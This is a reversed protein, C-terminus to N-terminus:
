RDTAGREGLLLLEARQVTGPLVGTGRWLPQHRHEGAITTSTRARELRDLDTSRLLLLQKPRELRRAAGNADTVTYTHHLYVELAPLDLELTTLGHDAPVLRALERHFERV